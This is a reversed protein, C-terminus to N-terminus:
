PPKVNENASRILQISDPVFKWWTSKDAPRISTCGSLKFKQFLLDNRKSEIRLTEKQSVPVCIFIITLLRIPFDEFILRVEGWIKRFVNKLNMVVYKGVGLEAPEIVELHTAGM